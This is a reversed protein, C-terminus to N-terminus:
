ESNVIKGYEKMVQQDNEQKNGNPNSPDYTHVPVNVVVNGNKDYYMYGEQYKSKLANAARKRANKIDWAAILFNVM